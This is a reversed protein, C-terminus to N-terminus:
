GFAGKAIMAGGLQGSVAAGVISLGGTVPTAGAGVLANAGVVFAGGVVLFVRRLVRRGENRTESSSAASEAEANSEEAHVREQLRRVEGRIGALRENLDDLPFTAGDSSPEIDRMEATLRDVVSVDLGLDVLLRREAQIFAGFLLADMAVASAAEAYPTIAEQARRLTAVLDEDRLFEDLARQSAVLAQELRQRRLEPNRTTEAEDLARNIEVLDDRVTVLLM